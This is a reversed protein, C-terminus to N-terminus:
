RSLASRCNRRAASWHCMPARSVIPRMPTGGCRGGNCPRFRCPSPLRIPLGTFLDVFQVVAALDRTWAPNDTRLDSMACRRFSRACWPCRSSRNRPRLGIIRAMYTLSLRYPMDVTDWICFHEELTLTELVLQVTDDAAWSTGTLEAPGLEARDYLGQM